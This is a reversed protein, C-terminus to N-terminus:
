AGGVETLPSLLRFSEMVSTPTERYPERRSIPHDIKLLVYAVLESCFWRYKDHKNRRLLLGFIGMGDYKSGVYSAALQWAELIHEESVPVDYEVFDKEDESWPAHAIVGKGQISEIEETRDRDSFVFSVHSFSGFTFWRIIDSGQGHGNYGRVKMEMFRGKRSLVVGALVCMSKLNAIQTSHADTLNVM